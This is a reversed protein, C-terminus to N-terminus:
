RGQEICADLWFGNAEVTRGGHVHTELVFKVTEGALESLNVLVDQSGEDYVEPWEDFSGTTGDELEYGLRFILNCGTEEDMCGVTAKFKYGDHVTIAPFFGKIFGQDSQNPHVNLVPPNGRTRHELAPNELLNVFGINGPQGNCPLYTAEGTHWIAQCHVMGFDYVVDDPLDLVELSASLPEQGNGGVGFMKGAANRLMWEGSFTGADMPAVLPASIDVTEGPAVAREPLAVESPSAMRDGSVFVLDYEDTWACTGRNEVRWTKTFHTGPNVATGVEVPVDVIVDKVFGAKDCNRAPSVAECASLFLIGGMISVIMFVTKKSM